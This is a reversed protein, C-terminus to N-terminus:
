TITNLKINEFIKKVNKLKNNANYYIGYEIENSLKIGLDIKKLKGESLEKQIYEETIYAIIDNGQLEELITSLTNNKIVINNFGSEKIAAEINKSTSSIKRLTYITVTDDISISKNLYESNSNVFFNEHLTGLSIFQILKSHIGDPQKKSLYADIENKELMSFMNETNGKGITLDINPKKEKLETLIPRYFDSSFNIHIGLNINAIQEVNDKVSSLVNVSDKIQNYLNEGDKTLVMGHQTREFLKLNLENELNHIHKTVAPQSIFLIESAKTLNGEDAVIKFIRYLELSPM